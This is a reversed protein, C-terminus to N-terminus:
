FEKFIGINTEEDNTFVPQNHYSGCQGICKGAYLLRETTLVYLVQKLVGIDVITENENLTSGDAFTIKMAHPGVYKDRSYYGLTSRENMGFGFLTDDQALALGIESSGAVRKITKDKFYEKPQM